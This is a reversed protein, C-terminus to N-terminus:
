KGYMSQYISYTNCVPASVFFRTGYRSSRTAEQLKEASFESLRYDRDSTTTGHAPLFLEPRAAYAERVRAHGLAYSSAETRPGSFAENHSGSFPALKGSQSGPSVYAQQGTRHAQEKAPSYLLEM